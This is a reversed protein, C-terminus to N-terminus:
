AVVEKFKDIEAQMADVQKLYRESESRYRIVKVAHDNISQAWKRIEEIDDAPQASKVNHAEVESEYAMAAYDRSNRRDRDIFNELTVIRHQVMEALNFDRLRVVTVTYQDGDHAKRDWYGADNSISYTFTVQREELIGTQVLRKAASTVHARNSPRWRGGGAVYRDFELWGDRIYDKGLVKRLGHEVADAHSSPKDYSDYRVPNAEDDAIVRDFWNEFYFRLAEYDSAKPNKVKAAFFKDFDM